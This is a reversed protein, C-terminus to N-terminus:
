GRNSLEQDLASLREITGVDTWQGTHHIGSVRGAAAAEFLLPALAFRQSERQAFLRLPLARRVKAPMAAYWGR